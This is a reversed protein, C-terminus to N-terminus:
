FFKKETRLGTEKDFFKINKALVAFEYVQGKQILVSVNLPVKAIIATEQGDGDRDLYGYVLRDSGLYAVRWVRFQFSRLNANVDYIEKPLFCEPRFGVLVEDREILNMPPSGMFTAVFTDAPEHYVEHPAGIQRVTGQSMVAIRDGLGMAEVQDHTVYIATIGIEEQFRKLEFRASHRLKADLNSLPEDFLFVTPERVMARALAVRQREGGSLERPKRHLLKDIGFMSAATVVKEKWQDKAVKQAKLPFAINKFVTMHPYLAYNQFVMAIQRVRPPLENVVQDDIVVEGASPRELGAIMRLLTTKGCGSPGLLVLFEGERTTLDVGDVARVKGFYKKLGRTGVQAM